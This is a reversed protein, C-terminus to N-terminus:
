EYCAEGSIGLEFQYGGLTGSMGGPYKRHEDTVVTGNMDIQEQLEYVAMELLRRLGELSRASVSLQLDFRGAVPRSSNVAPATLELMEAQEESMTLNCKSGSLIEAHEEDMFDLLKSLALTQAPHLQMQEKVKLRRIQWERIRERTLSDIETM